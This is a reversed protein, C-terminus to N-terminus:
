CLTERGVQFHRIEEAGMGEPQRKGHSLIFRRFRDSYAQEARLSLHRVGAVARVRELLKPRRIAAPRRASFHQFRQRARALYM